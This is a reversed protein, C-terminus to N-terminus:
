QPSSRPRLFLPLWGRDERNPDNLALLVASATLLCATFLAAVTLGPTAGALSLVQAFIGGTKSAGAVWGTARGRIAAPTNEAAYPLITAIVGNAGVVLLVVSPLVGIADGVAPLDLALLGCLGAVMAAITSVLTWKGSWRAYGLAVLLVLPAALLAGKSILASMANLPHGRAVLETPLWLLIGFNVLGWGLGVVTLAALLLAIAVTLHGGAPRALEAAHGKSPRLFAPSEPIFRNLAMLVVGTPLGLLWLARWTFHPEITAAAVSAAVYGGASGLGGVLVLAWGRSKAPLTETLLAYAVPLMGGASAGMLFCMSLNWGFTPMAGCISTGVFMVTAILIAARRGYFDCLWGWFLSGVATGSLAIFPLWAAQSRALGYEKSMAPLVFAITAPKMTDVVLAVALVGMLLWQSRGIREAPAPVPPPAGGLARGRRPILGYCALALGVVILGMGAIMVPDSGMHRTEMGPMNPDMGPTLAMPPPAGGLGALMVFMPLHLAVGAVVAACGLWFAWLSSRNAFV